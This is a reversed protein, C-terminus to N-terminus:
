LKFISSVDVKHAKMKLIILTIELQAILGWVFAIYFIIEAQQGLLLQLVTLTLLVAWAKAAYTHLALSRNFKLYGFAQVAIESVILIFFEFAHNLIFSTHMVFLVYLLSLWFITDTKSDLQRLHVSDIKLKRAIVGDFIDSLIAYLLLASIMFPDQLPKCFAVLIYYIAVLLRSYTLLYPLQKLFNTKMIM